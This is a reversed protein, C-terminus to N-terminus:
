YKNLNILCLVIYLDNTNFYKLLNFRFENILMANSYKQSYHRKTLENIWRIPIKYNTYIVHNQNIDKIFLNIKKSYKFKILNNKKYNKNITANINVIRHFKYKCYEFTKSGTKIIFGYKGANKGNTILVITGKLHEGINISDKLNRM